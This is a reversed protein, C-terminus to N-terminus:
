NINETDTFSGFVDFDKDTLPIPEGCENGAQVINQLTGALKERKFKINEEQKKGHFAKLCYIVYVLVQAAIDTILVGLYTLDSFKWMAVMSYIVIVNLLLLLYLMILKSTEIKPKFKYKDKEKKLLMKYEKQTNERKIQALKLEFDQRNMCDGM